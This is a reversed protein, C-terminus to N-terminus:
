QSRFWHCVIIYYNLELILKGSLTKLVLMNYRESEEKEIFQKSNLSKTETNEM